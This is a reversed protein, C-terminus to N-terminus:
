ENLLKILEHGGLDMDKLIRSQTKPRIIKGAHVPVTIRTGKRDKYIHHSGTSRSLLFGRKLMVGIVERSTIRPLRPTM